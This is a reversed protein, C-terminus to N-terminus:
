IKFRLIAGIGGLNWFQDGEETESSVIEVNASIDHAMKTFEKALTKNLNKSLILLEVAGYELAKRVDAEHLAALERKHGLTEFFRELLKKEYIIEQGALIDQSRQVLEKLGSEDSGGIDVRGILKEQLRTPLYQGDLFEDKTPIPGGVIIGKLKPMDYFITKMEDAIRKYFEKTL